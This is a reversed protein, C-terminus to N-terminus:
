QKAEQDDEREPLGTTSQAPAMGAHDVATPPLSKHLLTDYGFPLPGCSYKMRRLAALWERVARLCSEDCGPLPKAFQNDTIGWSMDLQPNQQPAATAPMVVTLLGLTTFIALLHKM